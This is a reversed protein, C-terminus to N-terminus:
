NDLYNIKVFKRQNVEEMMNKIELDIASALSQNCCTCTHTAILNEVTFSVPTIAMQRYISDKCQFNMCYLFYPQFPQKM